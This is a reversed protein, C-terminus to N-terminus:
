WPLAEEIAERGKALGDYIARADDSWPFKQGSAIVGQRFYGMIRHLEREGVEIMLIKEGTEKDSSVAVIKV